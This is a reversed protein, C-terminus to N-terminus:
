GGMRVSEGGGVSVSADDGRVRVSVEFGVSVSMVWKRVGVREGVVGGSVVFEGKDGAECEGGM